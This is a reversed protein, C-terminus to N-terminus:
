RELDEIARPTPLDPKSEIAKIAREYKDIMATNGHGYITPDEASQLMISLDRKMEEVNYNHMKFIAPLDRDVVGGITKDMVRPMKGTSLLDERLDAKKIWGAKEGILEWERKSIKVLQKNKSATIKM